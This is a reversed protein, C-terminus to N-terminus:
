GGALFYFSYVSKWDPLRRRLFEQRILKLARCKRQRTPKEELGHRTAIESNSYGAIFDAVISKYLQNDGLAVDIIKNLLDSEDIQDTGKEVVLTNETILEEKARRKDRRLIQRCHNMVLTRLWSFFNEINQFADRERKEM